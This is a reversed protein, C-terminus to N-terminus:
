AGQGSQTTLRSVSSPQAGHVNSCMLVANRDLWCVQMLREAPRPIRSSKKFTISSDFHKKNKMLTGTIFQQCENYLFGALKPTTFYHDTFVFSKSPVHRAAWLVVREGLSWNERDTTTENDFVDGAWEYVKFAWLYGSIPCNVCWLKIGYKHPKGPMYTRVPCRKGTYPIISEDVSWKLGLNIFAAIEENLVNIFPEVAHLKKKPKGEHPGATELDAATLINICFFKKIQFYRGQSLGFQGWNLAPVMGVASIGWNDSERPLQIHCMNL